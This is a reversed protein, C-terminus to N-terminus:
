PGSTAHPPDGVPQSGIAGNGTGCPNLNTGVITGGSVSDSVSSSGFSYTFFLTATGNASDSFEGADVYMCRSLGAAVTFSTAFHGGESVNAQMGVDNIVLNGLSVTIPSLTTNKFCFVAHYYKPKGSHKCFTGPEFSPVIPASAAATPAAAAVMVAPTAWAAGKVVARRRVKPAASSDTQTM